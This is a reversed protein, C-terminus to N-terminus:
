TCLACLLSPFCIHRNKMIAKKIMINRIIAGCGKTKVCMIQSKSAQIEPDFMNATINRVNNERYKEQV